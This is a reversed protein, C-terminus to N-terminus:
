QDNSKETNGGPNDGRLRHIRCHDIPGRKEACQGCLLADCADFDCRATAPRTCYKCTQKHRRRGGCLFVVVGNELRTTTSTM